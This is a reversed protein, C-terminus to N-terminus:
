FDYKVSLQLRNLDGELASEIERTAHRFEVGWSLKAATQHILNLAVSQSSKTLSTGTLAVPNDMTQGAFIFSSRLKDNWQHKYSVSYATQDLAELMGMADLVADNATNLSLYRGIGAGHTLSFRIDDAANVLYKGTLSLGFGRSTDNQTLTEHSLERAIAALSVTGWSGSHTFKATIDPLANDDTVMRSGVGTYPTVTTEPNEIAVQWPGSSYRIQAQRVFVTGDTNGVFDLSDPLSNVDMFTSWTQGFLWGDYSVFAHRIEPAYGNSTRQDGITTGMMDFELRGSIKKGNGTDTESTFFFRSQRAHMDFVASEAKGSVPTLGPVYFDRGVGTGIQGNSTDTWLADLKIYGGFGIESDGMKFGAQAHSAIFVSSLLLSLTLRKFKHQGNEIDSTKRGMTQSVGQCQLPLVHVHHKM